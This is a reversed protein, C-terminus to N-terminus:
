EREARQSANFAHSEIAEGFAPDAVLAGVIESADIEPTVQLPNSKFDNLAVASDLILVPPRPNVGTFRNWETLTVHHLNQAGVAWVAGDPTQVYMGDDGLTTQGAIAWPRTSDADATHVSSVHFHTDHPDDETYPMWTFAPIGNFVRGYFIRRNFIVYGIRADRSLRLRETIVGGDLGHAPAHPFDRACVVATSGLATYYHPYHDSSTSHANDALAGWSDASTHLVADPYGSRIQNNLQDLGNVVRWAQGTHWTAM